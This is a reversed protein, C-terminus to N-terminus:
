SAKLIAKCHLGENKQSETDHFEQSVSAAAKHLLETFTLMLLTYM